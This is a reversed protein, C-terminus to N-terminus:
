CRERLEQDREHQHNEGVTHQRHEAGTNTEDGRVEVSQEHQNTGKSREVCARRGHQKDGHNAEKVVSSEARLEETSSVDTMEDLM